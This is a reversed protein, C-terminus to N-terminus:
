AWSTSSSLVAVTMAAKLSTASFCPTKAGDVRVPAAMKEVSRLGSLPGASLAVGLDPPSKLWSPDLQNRSVRGLGPSAAFAEKAGPLPSEGLLQALTANFAQVWGIGKQAVVPDRIVVPVEAHRCWILARGKDRIGSGRQWFDEGVLLFADYFVVIRHRETGQRQLNCWLFKAEAHRATAGQHAPMQILGEAEVTTGVQQAAVAGLSLRKRNLWLLTFVFSCLSRCLIAM